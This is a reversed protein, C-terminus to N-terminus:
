DTIDDTSYKKQIEHLDPIAGRNNWIELISNRLPSSVGAGLAIIGLELDKAFRRLLSLPPTEAASSVEHHAAL